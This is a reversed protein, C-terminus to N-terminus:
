EDVAAVSVVDYAGPTVLKVTKGDRSVSYIHNWGDRESPWLFSKGHDLWTVDDVLDVWASDKETTVLSVSGNSPDALMVEDRRKGQRGARCATSWPPRRVPRSSRSRATPGASWTSTAKACTAWARAM